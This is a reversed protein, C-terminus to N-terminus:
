LQQRLKNNTKLAKSVPHSVAWTAREPERNELNKITRLAETIHAYTLYPLKRTPDVLLSVHHPYILFAPSLDKDKWQIHSFDEEQELLNKFDSADIANLGM